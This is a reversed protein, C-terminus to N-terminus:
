PSIVLEEQSIKSEKSKIPTESSVFQVDIGIDGLSCIRRYRGQYQPAPEVLGIKSWKKWYNEITSKSGLGVLRAIERTGHSGDSLEYAKLETDSKLNQIIITKTQQMGSFKTWKLIEKLTELIDRLIPESLVEDQPTGFM